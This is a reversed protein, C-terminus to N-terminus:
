SPLGRLMCSFACSAIDYTLRHPRGSRNMVNVQLGWHISILISSSCLWIGTSLFSMVALTKLCFNFDRISKMMFCRKYPGTRQQICETSHCFRPRGWACMQNPENVSGSRILDIRYDWTEASIGFSATSAFNCATTILKWCRSVRYSRHCTNWAIGSLGWQWCWWLCRRIGM